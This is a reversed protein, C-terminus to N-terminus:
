TDCTDNEDDDGCEACSREYGPADGDEFYSLCYRCCEGSITLDALEGM